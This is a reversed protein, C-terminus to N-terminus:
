FLISYDILKSKIGKKYPKRLKECMYSKKIELEEIKDEYKWIKYQKNEHYDDMNQKILDNYFEIRKEIFDICNFLHKETMRSIRLEQNDKTVWIKKVEIEKGDIKSKYTTNKKTM